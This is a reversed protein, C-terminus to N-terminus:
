KMIYSKMLGYNIGSLNIPKIEGHYNHLGQQDLPSTMKLSTDMQGFILM